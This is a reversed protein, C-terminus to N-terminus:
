KTRAEAMLEARMVPTAPGPYKAATPDPRRVKLPARQRLTMM